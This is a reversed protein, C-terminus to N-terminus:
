ASHVSAAGAASARNRRSRRARRRSACATAPSKRCASRPLPSARLGRARSDPKGCFALNSAALAASGADADQGFVDGRGEIPRKLLKFRDPDLRPAAARSRASHGAAARRTPAQPAVSLSSFEDRALSTSIRDAM